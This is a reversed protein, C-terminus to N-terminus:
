VWRVLGAGVMNDFPNQREIRLCRGILQGVNKLIEQAPVSVQQLHELRAGLFHFLRKGVMGRKRLHLALQHACVKEVLIREFRGRQEIRADHCMRILGSRRVPAKTEDQAKAGDAFTM